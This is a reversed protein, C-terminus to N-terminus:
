PKPTSSLVPPSFALVHQRRRDRIQRNLAITGCRTDHAVIHIGMISDHTLPDGEIPRNCGDCVPLDQYRESEERM